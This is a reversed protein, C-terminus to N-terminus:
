PYAYFHLSGALNNGWWQPFEHAQGSGGFVAFTLIFIIIQVGGAIAATVIMIWKAFLVPRKKRLYAQSFFGFVFYPLLSSNIGVSLWGLWNSILFTNIYNARLKPWYKHILWFPLPLFIGIALAIPVM